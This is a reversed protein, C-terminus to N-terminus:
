SNIKKRSITAYSVAGILLLGIGIAIASYYSTATKPLQSTGVTSTGDEGPGGKGSVTVKPDVEDEGPGGKGSIDESKDDKGPESKKKKVLNEIAGELMMKASHVESQLAEEDGIVERAEALADAFPAFSEDTYDNKDMKSASDVLEILEKKDAKVPELEEVSRQLRNYADAIDDDTANEDELVEQARILAEIFSGFSDDTYDVEDHPQTSSIFDNLDDKDIKGPDGPDGGNGDGKPPEGGGGIIVEFEVSFKNPNTYTVKNLDFEATFMYTGPIDPNYPRDIASITKPDIPMDIKSGDELTVVVPLNYLDVELEFLTKGRDLKLTILEPGESIALDDLSKFTFGKREVYERSVPNGYIVLDKPDTQNEAFYDFTHHSLLINAAHVYVTELQNNNFSRPGFYTVTGPINVTTLKNNQFANTGIYELNKSLVVDIIENELFASGGIKTVSDPIILSEIKNQAFAGDGIEKVGDEITVNKIINDWFANTSIKRINGPITVSEIDNDAFASSPIETLTKPISISTINNGQFADGGLEILSTPLTVSTVGTSEFAKYGIETVTDPITLKNINKDQFARSGITTVPQGNLEDPITLDTDSGNYQLIIVGNDNERIMYDGITYIPPPDNFLSIGGQQDEDIEESDTSKESSQSEEKKSKDGDDDVIKEEDIDKAEKKNKDSDNRSENSEDQKDNKETIQDNKVLSEGDLQETTKVAEADKSEAIVNSNMGFPSVLLM